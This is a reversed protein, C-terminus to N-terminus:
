AIVQMAPMGYLYWNPEWINWKQDVERSINRPFAIFIAWTGPGRFVSPLGPHLEQNRSGPLWSWGALVLWDSHGHEILNRDLFLFETEEEKERKKGEGNRGEERQGARETGRKWIFLFLYKCLHNKILFYYKQFGCKFCKGREIQKKIREEGILIQTGVPFQEPAECKLNTLLMYSSLNLHFILLYCVYVKKYAWACM